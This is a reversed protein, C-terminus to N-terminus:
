LISSELSRQQTEFYHSKSDLLGKLVTLADVTRLAISLWTPYKPKEDSSVRKKSTNKGIYRQGFIIKLEKRGHNTELSSTQSRLM